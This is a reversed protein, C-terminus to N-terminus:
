LLELHDLLVQRLRTRDSGLRSGHSMREDPDRDLDYLFVEGTEGDRLLKLGEEYVVDRPHARRTSSFLHRWPAERGPLISIGGLDHPGRLHSLDLLTPMLDVHGVRRQVQGV